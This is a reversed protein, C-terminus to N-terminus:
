APPWTDAMIYGELVELAKIIDAKTAGTSEINLEVLNSGTLTGGPASETVNVSADAGVKSLGALTIAYRNVAM